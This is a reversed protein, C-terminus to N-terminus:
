IEEQPAPHFLLPLLGAEPFRRNRWMYAYQTVAKDEATIHLVTSRVTFGEGWNNFQQDVKFSNTNRAM